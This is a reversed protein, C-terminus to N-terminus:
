ARWPASYEDPVAAATPVAPHDRGAPAGAPVRQVDARIATLHAEVLASRDPAADLLAFAPVTLQNRRKAVRYVRSNWIMGLSVIVPDYARRIILACEGPLMRIMAETMVAHERKGGETGRERYFATGCLERATKLTDPNSVGPLFVKSGCTDWIIEAGYQGWREELQAMGHVVPIIQIGQGGADALWAPLPVPCVQTIEDLAMLMPPDLRNGDMQSGLEVARYQIESAMCAFLPAMASTEGNSRAIMYLTGASMLFHDIDFEDAMGPMVSQRLMPDNMFDIAQTMVLRITAVTKDAPGDFAAVADAWQHKGAATLIMVAQESLSPNMVWSAVTGLDGGALAAAHFMGRMFEAANSSWFSADEAGKVSVAYVLADARRMATSEDECGALPNWRFTSLIGGLGQPNFVHIPRGNKSRIGATLIYQDAKSSTVIASGPFRAVVGALWGSKGERPPGFVLIHEQISIRLRTYYQAMGVLVSHQGAFLARQWLPLTPRARRSERFSAYRGWRQWIGFMTAHGRGPRMHWRVRRKNTRVREGPLTHDPLTLTLMLATIVGPVLVRYAIGHHLLYTIGCLAATIIVVYAIIRYKM